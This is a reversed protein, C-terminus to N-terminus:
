RKIWGLSVLLGAIQIVQRTRDSATPEHRTLPPRLGRLRGESMDRSEFSASM